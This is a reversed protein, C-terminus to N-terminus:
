AEDDILWWFLQCVAKHYSCVNIEIRIKVQAQIALTILLPTTEMHDCRDCRDCRDSCSTAAAITAITAIM